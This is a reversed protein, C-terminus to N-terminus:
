RADASSIIKEGLYRKAGDIGHAVVARPHTM